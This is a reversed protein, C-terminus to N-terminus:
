DLREASQLAQKAVYVFENIWKQLQKVDDIKNVWEHDAISKLAEVLREHNNVCRVIFSANAQMINHDINKTGYHCTAVYENDKSYIQNGAEKDKPNVGRNKWPLQSTM